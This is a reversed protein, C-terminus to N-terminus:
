EYITCKVKNRDIWTTRPNSIQSGNINKYEDLKKIQPKDREVRKVRPDDGWIEKIVGNEIIRILSTGAPRDSM